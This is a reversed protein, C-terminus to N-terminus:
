MPCLIMVVITESDVTFTDWNMYWIGGYLSYFHWVIHHTHGLGCTNNLICAVYVGDQIGLLLNTGFWVGYVSLLADWIVWQSKIITSTDWVVSLTHAVYVGDLGWTDLLPHTGFWVDSVSLLIDWQSYTVCLMVLARHLILGLGCVGKLTYVVNLGDWIDM